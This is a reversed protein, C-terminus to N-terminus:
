MRLHWGPYWSGLTKRCLRLLWLVWTKCTFRLKWEGWFDLQRGLSLAQRETSRSSHKGRGRSPRDPCDFLPNLSSPPLLGENEGISSTNVRKCYFTTPFSFFSKYKTHFNMWRLICTGIKQRRTSFWIKCCCCSGCVWLLTSVVLVILTSVLRTPLKNWKTCFSNFLYASKNYNKWIRMCFFVLWYYNLKM